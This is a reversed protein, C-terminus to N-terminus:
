RHVVVGGVQAEAKTKSAHCGRCLVQLNTEDDSGGRSLPVVHDVEVGLTVRGAAHCVVCLPSSRLLRERRTVARRGRLREYDTSRVWTRHHKDCFRRGGATLARCGPHTCQKQPLVLMSPKDTLESPPSPTVQGTTYWRPAGPALPRVRPRVRVYACVRSCARTRTHVHLVVTLPSPAAQQPHPPYIAVYGVVGLSRTPRPTEAPQQRHQPRQPYRRVTHTHLVCPRPTGAVIGVPAVGRARTAISTGAPPVGPVGRGARDRPNTLVLQCPHLLTGLPTNDTTPPRHDRLM